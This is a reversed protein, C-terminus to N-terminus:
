ESLVFHRPLALHSEQDIFMSALLYGKMSSRVRLELVDGALGYDLRLAERREDTLDPNLRLTVTEFTNWDKDEPLEGAPDGPWEAAAMRGLVFDALRGPHRVLSEFALASRGM